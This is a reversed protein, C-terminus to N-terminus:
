CISCNKEFWSQSTKVTEEKLYQTMSKYKDPTMPLWNPIKDDNYIELTEKIDKMCYEIWKVRNKFKMEYKVFGLKRLCGSSRKFKIIDYPELVGHFHLRGSKDFEHYYSYYKSFKKLEKHLRESWLVFLHRDANCRQPKPSLTFGIELSQNKPDEM